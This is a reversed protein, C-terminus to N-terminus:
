GSVVVCDERETLTLGFPEIESRIDDIAFCRYRSRVTYEAVPTDGHLVKYTMTWAMDHQGAPEGEQWGEYVYDGVSLRRYRSLPVSVPRGPPLVEIVAPAGPPMREAVFRWLRARETDDLHGLAASAVLACARDPLVAEAFRRPDVTTLRCLEPDMMLRTHLGTRMARSPEIAHIRADPVALHLYPLGVGTGAGLDVIPGVSPDADSLLVLLQMGFTDWHGTALLDYFEATAVGYPDGVAPGDATPSM